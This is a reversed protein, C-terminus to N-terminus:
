ASGDSLDIFKLWSWIMDVRGTEDGLVPLVLRRYREFTQRSQIM